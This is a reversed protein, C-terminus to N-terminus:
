ARLFAAMHRLMLCTFLYQLGPGAWAGVCARVCARVCAGVCSRVCLYAACFARCSCRRCCLCLCGWVSVMVYLCRHIPCTLAGINCHGECAASMDVPPQCHALLAAVGEERKEAIAALLDQMTPGPVGAALLLPVMAAPSPGLVAARLLGEDDHWNLIQVSPCVPLRTALLARLGAVARPHPSQIASRVWHRASRVEASATVSLPRVPIGSSNVAFAALQMHQELVSAACSVLAAYGNRAAGVLLEAAQRRSGLQLRGAARQRELHQLCLEALHSHNSSDHFDALISGRTNYMTAALCDAGRQLLLEAIGAASATNTIHALASELYGGPAAATAAAPPM